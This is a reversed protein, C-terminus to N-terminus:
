DTFIKSATKRALYQRCEEESDFIHNSKVGNCLQCAAVFELDDCSGTYSYPIFHDWVAKLLVARGRRLLVTDGFERACWHCKNDQLALRERQHSISPQKRRFMGRGERRVTRGSTAVHGLECRDEAGTLSWEQCTECYVRFLAVSGYLKKM